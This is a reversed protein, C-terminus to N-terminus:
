INIELECKWINNNIRFALNDEVNCVDRASKAIKSKEKEQVILNANESMKDAPSVYCSSSLDCDSEVKSLFKTEKIEQDGDGVEEDNDEETDEQVASLGGLNHEVALM